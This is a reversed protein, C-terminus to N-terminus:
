PRPLRQLAPKASAVATRRRASRAPPGSVVAPADATSECRDITAMAARSARSLMPATFVRSMAAGCAPCPWIPPATGMPLNIDVLGSQECRYRYLAM